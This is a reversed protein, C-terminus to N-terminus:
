WSGDPSLLLDIQDEESPDYLWNYGDNLCDIIELMNVYTHKSFEGLFNKADDSTFKIGVDRASVRFTLTCNIPHVFDLNSIVLEGDRDILSRKILHRIIMLQYDDFDYLRLLKDPDAQPFKGGNTIDDLFELKM